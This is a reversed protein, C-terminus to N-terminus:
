LDLERQFAIAERAEGVGDAAESPELLEPHVAVAELRERLGEPAARRERHELAVVVQQALQRRRHRLQGLELPEVQLGVRQAAEGLQPAAHQAVHRQLVEAEAGVAEIQGLRELDVARADPEAPVRPRRRRREGAPQRHPEGTGVVGELGRARPSAAVRQEHAEGGLYTCPM